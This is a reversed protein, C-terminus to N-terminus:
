RLYVLMVAIGIAPILVYELMIKTTLTHDVKHHLIGLVAYFFSTLIVISLQMSRDPSLFLLLVLGAILVSLLSLYYFIHKRIHSHIQM